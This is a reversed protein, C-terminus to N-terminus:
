ASVTLISNKGGFPNQVSEKANPDPMWQGDVVFLYEYKGPNVTLDGVWHGNGQRVLPLSDPKWGNFSGAVCVKKAEPRVLELSVHSTRPKEPASPAVPKPANAVPAPAPAAAQVPAPKPAPPTVPTARTVPALTSAPTPKVAIPTSASKATPQPQSTTITKPAASQPVPKSPALKIAEAKTLDNKTYNTKAKRTNSM